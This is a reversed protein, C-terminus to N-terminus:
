RGWLTVGRLIGATNVKDFLYGAEKGNLTLAGSLTANSNTTNLVGNAGITGSGVITDTGITSNSLGLQTSFTARTFDVKLASDTINVPEIITGNNRALQATGNALRFNASTDASALVAGAATSTRFLTYSGNGIVRESGSTAVAQQIDQTFADGDMRKTWIFRSWMLQSVVAPTNPPTVQPSTQPIGAVITAARNDATLVKSSRVDVANDDLSLPKDLSSTTDTGTTSLTMHAPGPRASRALLDVLPVFQPATQLRSLELMQGKMDESLAKESGNLCPGVSKSCSGALPTLMIAGTYVSASTKDGETKVVFDTGKIGIAAIPTNLRFRDRAAEGWSGTISRVVGEDLRFKIAGLSPQQTSHSYDEIQLASAPRISLRGGDVFRLHVHGGAQTEIRDGVRISTGRDVARTTGDAGIVKAIGIVMTAEGVMAPDQAHAIPVSAFLVMALWLGSNAKTLRFLSSFYTLPTQLLQNRM